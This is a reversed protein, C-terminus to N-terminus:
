QGTRDEDDGLHAAAHRMGSDIQACLEGGVRNRFTAATDRALAIAVRHHRMNRRLFEVEAVLAEVDELPVPVGAGGLPDDVDARWLRAREAIGALHEDTM